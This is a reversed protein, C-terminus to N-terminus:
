NCPNMGNEPLYVDGKNFNERASVLLLLLYDRNWIGHREKTTYKKCWEKLKILFHQGWLLALKWVKLVTDKEPKVKSIPSM